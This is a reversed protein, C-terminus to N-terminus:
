GGTEPTFGAKLLAKHMPRGREAKWETAVFSTVAKDVYDYDDVGPHNVTKAFFFGDRYFKSINAKLDSLLNEQRPLPLTRFDKPPNDGIALEGYPVDKRSADPVEVDGVKPINYKSTEPKFAMFKGRPMRGGKPIVHPAAGTTLYEAHDENSIVRAGGSSGTSGAGAGTSGYPKVQWSGQLNGTDIGIGSRTIERKVKIKVSPAANFKAYKFYESNVKGPMRYFKQQLDTLGKTEIHFEFKGSV